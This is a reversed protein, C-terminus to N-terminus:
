PQISAQWSKASNGTGDVNGQTYGAVTTVAGQPSIRRIRYDGGSVYIYGASDIALAELDFFKAVKSSGDVSGVQGSGAFTSM